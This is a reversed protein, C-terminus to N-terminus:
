DSRSRVQWCKAILPFQEPHLVSELALDIDLDSWYLHHENLLEVNQISSVSANRFWPFNDFSLFHEEENLLLWIGHKSIQTVEAESTSTGLTESKM